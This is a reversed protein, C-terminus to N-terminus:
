RNEAASGDPPTAAAPADTMTSTGPSAYRAPLISFEHVTSTSDPLGGNGTKTQGSEEALVKHIILVADKVKMECQYAKPANGRLIERCRISGYEREYIESAKRIALYSKARTNDEPNGSSISYSIIAVAASFAGCVEQKGGFGDGFGEMIRFATEVDLGLEEAFTCLVAQACNYGNQYNEGASKLKENMNM